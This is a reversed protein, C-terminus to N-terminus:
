RAQWANLEKGPPAPALDRVADARTGRVALVQGSVPDGAPSSLFAVVAAVEGATSFPVGSLGPHPGVPGPAVVHVLVGLPALDRALGLGLGQVGAKAACLHAAGPRGHVAALSSFLVVRAGHEGALLPLLEKVLVFSGTLDVDVVRRFESATLASIDVPRGSFGTTCNVLGHLPGDLADRVQSIDEPRTVDGHVTAASVGFRQGLDAALSRATGSPARSHLVLDAGHRALTESLATGVSGTAGAVFITRGSLM